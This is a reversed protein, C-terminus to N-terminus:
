RALRWQEDFFGGEVITGPAKATVPSDVDIIAYDALKPTQRANNLYDFERFTFGSSLVVYREPNLPNPYILAPMHHAADFTKGGAVLKDGAWKIPLKDAIKALIANSSADGFCVLNNERIDAETVDVDNKVRAEGRFQKQWHAIAHECESKVWGGTKDNMPKGSPKVIIFSDMFADDIPGQLGHRKRLEGAAAASERNITWVGNAKVLTAHLGKNRNTPTEINRDDIAVVATADAALPSVAAPIDLTLASVNSTKVEIKTPSAIRADVRAREWHKELGDVTIWFMRNYRLTWTTFRIQRPM